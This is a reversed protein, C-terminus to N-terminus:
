PCRAPPETAARDTATFAAFAATLAALAQPIRWASRDRPGIANSIARLEAFPVGAAAAAVAAGYGEMAEAVAGPHRSRLALAGAATGTVTSVTLIQGTVASPLAALMAASLAPDTPALTTGFGLADISLFGTPTDAGLDAAVSTSALAVGGVPVVGAFGGGIGACVVAHYPAGAGEALALLRATGAASAAPGVGVAAVTVGAADPGGAGPLGGPEGPGGLGALVAAREADVATVVLLRGAAFGTL